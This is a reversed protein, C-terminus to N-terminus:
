KQFFGKCKTCIGMVWDTGACMVCVLKRQFLLVFTDYLTNGYRNSFIMALNNIARFIEPTVDSGDQEYNYGSVL